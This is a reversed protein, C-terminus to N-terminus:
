FEHKGLQPPFAMWVSDRELEFLIEKSNTVSFDDSNAKSYIELKEYATRSCKIVLKGKGKEMELRSSKPSVLELGMSFFTFNPGQVTNSDPFLNGKYPKQCEVLWVGASYFNESGDTNAWLRMTTFGHRVLRLNYSVTVKDGEFTADAQICNEVIEEGFIAVHLMQLKRYARCNCQVVLKAEGAQTMIHSNMPSVLELGLDNFLRNPGYIENCKPFLQGTYANRCDVLWEGASYYKEDKSDKSKTWLQVATLGQEVLRFSFSMIVFEKSFIAEALISHETPQARTNRTNGSVTEVFIDLKDYTARKCKMVLNCEGNLAEIYSAMPSVLELDLNYFLSNPGYIHNFTQFLNGKYAKDCRVLWVGALDYTDSGERTEWLKFIYFGTKDLRFFFSVNTCDKGFVAKTMVCDNAKAGDKVIDYMFNSSKYADQPCRMVLEGEGNERRSCLLALPYSKLGKGLFIEQPGWHNFDTSPFEQLPISSHSSSDVLFCGGYELVNGKDEAFVTLKYQGPNPCIMHVKVSRTSSEPYLCSTLNKSLDSNHCFKFHMQKIPGNLKDITLYARGDKAQIIPITPSTM